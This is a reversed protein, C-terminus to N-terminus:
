TTTKLPLIFKLEERFPSSLVMTADTYLKGRPPIVAAGERVGSEHCGQKKWDPGFSTKPHPSRLFTRKSCSLYVQSPQAESWPVM